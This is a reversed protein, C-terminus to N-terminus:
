NFDARPQRRLRCRGHRTLLAITILSHHAHGPWKLFNGIKEGDWVRFDEDKTHVDASIIGVLSTPLNGQRVFPNEFSSATLM